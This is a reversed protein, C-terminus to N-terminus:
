DDQYIWGHSRDFNFSQERVTNWGGYDFWMWMPHKMPGKGSGAMTNRNETIIENWVDSMYKDSVASVGIGTVCAPEAVLAELVRESHVEPARTEENTTVLETEDLTHYDMGRGGGDIHVAIALQNLVKGSTEDEWDDHQTGVVIRWSRWSELQSNSIRELIWRVVEDECESTTSSTNVRILINNSSKSNSRRVCAIDQILSVVDTPLPLVSSM